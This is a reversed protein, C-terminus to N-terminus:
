VQIKENPLKPYNIKPPPKFATCAAIITPSLVLFERKKIKPAGFNLWQLFKEFGGLLSELKSLNDIKIQKFIKSELKQRLEIRTLKNQEM